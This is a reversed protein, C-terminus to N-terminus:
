APGAAPVTRETMGGPRHPEQGRQPRLAHDAITDLVLEIEEGPRPRAPRTWARSSRSSTAAGHTPLDEMGSDAALEALETPSAARRSECTSTPTSSPAWRSSSALGEAQFQLARSDPEVQADEFHEPRMGAIVDRRGQGQRGSRAPQPARGAAARRRVAAQAHRGGAARPVFNMSPSGIFGAVFLNAPRRLAGEAHRGAAHDRRADGGRPRRADDGRDPRPDRVGDDDRAAAPDAVVETRMQVRLKADLNSLPEDM